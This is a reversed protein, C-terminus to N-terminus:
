NYGDVDNENEVEKCTRSGALRQDRRLPVRLTPIHLNSAKNAQCKKMEIANNYTMDSM